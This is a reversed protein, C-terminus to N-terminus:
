KGVWVAGEKVYLTTGAGGDTRIFVHGAMAAPPIGTGVQINSNAITLTGAGLQRLADNLRDRVTRLVPVIVRNLPGAVEGEVVPRDGLSQDVTPILAM